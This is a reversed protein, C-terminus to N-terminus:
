SLLLKDFTTFNMLFIINKEAKFPIKKTFIKSNL